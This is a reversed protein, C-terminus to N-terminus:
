YTLLEDMTTSPMVILSSGHNCKRAHPHLETLHFAGQWLLHPYNHASMAQVKSNTNCKTLDIHDINDSFWIIIIINFIIISVFRNIIHLAWCQIFTKLSQTILDNLKTHAYNFSLHTWQLVWFKLYLQFLNYVISSLSSSPLHVLCLSSKYVSTRYHSNVLVGEPYYM